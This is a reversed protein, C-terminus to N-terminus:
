GPYQLSYHVCCAWASVSWTVFVTTGSMPKPHPQAWCQCASAAARCSKLLQMLRASLVMDQMGHQVGQQVGHVGHASHSQQLHGHRAGLLQTCDDNVRQAPLDHDAPGTHKSLIAPWGVLTSNNVTTPSTQFTSSSPICQLMM